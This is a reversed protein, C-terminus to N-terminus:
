NLIKIGYYDLLFIPFSGIVFVIEENKHKEKQKVFIDKQSILSTPYIFKDSLIYNAKKSHEKVIYSWNEESFRYFHKFKEDCDQEVINKYTSSCKAVTDKFDSGAKLHKIAEVMPYSIYLKGKETENDFVELMKELYEDSSNSAQKDYDFFLYIQSIQEKSIDDLDSNREKLLNFTDLDDDFEDQYIFEKYLSYITTGYVSKIIIQEKDNLFYKELSKLIQPETKEGEFIMLIYSSKSM